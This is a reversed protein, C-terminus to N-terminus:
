SENSDKFLLFEIARVGKSGYFYTRSLPLELQYINNMAGPYSAYYLNIKELKELMFAHQTQENSDGRDPSELSNLCCVM